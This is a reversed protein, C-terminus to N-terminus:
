YQNKFSKPSPGPPNRTVWYSQILSKKIKLEDRGFLRTIISIPTIIVFFILGLVIPNIIKGLLTGLKYWIQNLPKLTKPSFFTALALLFSRLIGACFYLPKPYNCIAVTAFVVSLLWGLKANSPAKSSAGLDIM